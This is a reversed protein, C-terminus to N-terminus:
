SKRKVGPYDNPLNKSLNRYWRETASLLTIRHVIPRARLSKQINSQPLCLPQSLNRISKLLINYFDHLFYLQLMVNNADANIYM